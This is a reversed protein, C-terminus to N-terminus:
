LLNAIAPIAWGLLSLGIQVALIGGVRRRLRGAEWGIRIYKEGLVLHAAVLLATFVQSMIWAFRSADGLAILVYFLYWFTHQWILFGVAASVIVLLMHIGYALMRQNETLKSQDHDLNIM